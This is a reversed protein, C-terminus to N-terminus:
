FQYDRLQNAVPHFYYNDHVNSFKCNSSFKETSIYIYIYIYIYNNNKNIIYM